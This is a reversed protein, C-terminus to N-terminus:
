FLGSFIDGLGGGIGMGATAGAPGGLLAGIGGGAITGLGKGLANQRQQNLVYQMISNQNNMGSQADELSYQRGLGASSLDSQTQYGQQAINQLNNMNQVGQNMLSLDTNQQIQGFQNALGQNFAGSNLLGLNNYQQRFAEGEPGTSLNTEANQRYQDLMKQLAAQQDTQRQQTDTMFQSNMQQQQQMQQQLEQQDQGWGPTTPQPLQPQGGGLGFASAVRTPITTLAMLPNLATAAIGGLSFGRNSATAYGPITSKM